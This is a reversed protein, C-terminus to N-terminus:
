NYMVDVALIDRVGAKEMWIWIDELPDYIDENGQDDPEIPMQALRRLDLWKSATWLIDHEDLILRVHFFQAACELRHAIGYCLGFAVELLTDEKSVEKLRCEVPLVLEHSLYNRAILMHIRTQGLHHKPDPERHFFPFIFVSIPDPPTSMWWPDSERSPQERLADEVNVLKDYFERQEEMLGWPFVNVIQMNLSTKCVLGLLGQLAIVMSLWTTFKLQEM